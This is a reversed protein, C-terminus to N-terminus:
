VGELKDSIGILEFKSGEKRGVIFYNRVSGEM